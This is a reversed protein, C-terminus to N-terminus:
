NAKLPTLLTIQTVLNSITAIDPNEGAAVAARAVLLAAYAQKIDIEVEVQDAGNLLGVAEAARASNVAANFLTEASILAREAQVTASPGTSACATLFGCFAFLTAAKQLRNM